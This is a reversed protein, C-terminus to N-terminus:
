TSQGPGGPDQGENAVRRWEVILEDAIVFSTQATAGEGPCRPVGPRETLRFTGTTFEGQTEARILEAGCPLSTNFFVADDFEEIELVPGNEAVSPLAFYEAAADIDGATLAQAWEDIVRVDEPDADGEIEPAPEDGAEPSEEAGAPSEPAGPEDDSEGCAALALCLAALFIALFRAPVRSTNRVRRHPRSPQAFM